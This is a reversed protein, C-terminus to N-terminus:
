IPVDRDVKEHLEHAKKVKGAKGNLKTTRETGSRQIILHSISDILWILRATRPAIFFLGGSRGVVPMFGSGIGCV